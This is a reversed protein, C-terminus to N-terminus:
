RELGLPNLNSTFSLNLLAVLCRGVKMRHQISSTQDIPPPRIYLSLSPVWSPIPPFGDLVEGQGLTGVALLELEIKIYMIDEPAKGYGIAELYKEYNLGRTIRCNTIVSHDALSYDPRRLDRHPDFARNPAEVNPENVLEIDAQNNITEINSRSITMTRCPLWLSLNGRQIDPELYHSPTGTITV